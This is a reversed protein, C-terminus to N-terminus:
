RVWTVANSRLRYMLRQGILMPHHGGCEDDLVVGRLAESAGGFPEDFGSHFEVRYPGVETLGYRVGRSPVVGEDGEAAPAALVPAVVEGAEHLGGDGVGRGHERDAGGRPHEGGREAAADFVALLREPRAHEGFAVGGSAVHDEPGGGHGEVHDAPAALFEHFERGM